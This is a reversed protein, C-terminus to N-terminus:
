QLETIPNVLELEVDRRLNAMMIAYVVRKMQNAGRTVKASRPLKAGDYNSTTAHFALMACQGTAAVEVPRGKFSALWHMLQTPLDQDGDASGAHPAGMTFEEDSTPSSLMHTNPPQDVPMSAAHAPRESHVSPSVFRDMTSQVLDGHM